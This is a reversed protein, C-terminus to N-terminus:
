SIWTTDRSNKVYGLPSFADVRLNLVPDNVAMIGFFFLGWYILMSKQFPGAMIVVPFQRRLLNLFWLLTKKEPLTEYEVM